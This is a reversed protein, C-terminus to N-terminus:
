ASRVRMARSICSTSAWRIESSLRCAPASSNRGSAGGSSTARAAATIRALACWASSSRRATIPTSRSPSPRRAAAAAAASAPPAARAARPTARPRCAAAVGVHADGVQGRHGVRDPAVRQADDLLRQRVRALMRRRGGDVQPDLARRAVPQRDLHAVRHRDQRGAVGSIGPEPAPRTPRASRAVSEPPRRSCPRSSFPSKRSRAQSGHGCHALLDAHQDDVVVREDAGPQRHQEGAGLVDRDDALGGVAVLDGARHGLM